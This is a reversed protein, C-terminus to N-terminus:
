QPTHVHSRVRRSGYHPHKGGRHRWYRHKTATVNTNAMASSPASKAAAAGVGQKTQALSLTSPAIAALLGGLILVGCATRFNM